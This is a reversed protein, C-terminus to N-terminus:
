FLEKQPDDWMGGDVIALFEGISEIERGDETRLDIKKSNQLAHTLHKRCIPGDSTMCVGKGLCQTMGKLEHDYQEFVCLGPDDKIKFLM